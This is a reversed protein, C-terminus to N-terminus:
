FFCPWNRKANLDCLVSKPALIQRASQYFIDGLLPHKTKGKLNYTIIIIISYNQRWFLIPIIITQMLSLSLGCGRDVNLRPITWATTSPTTAQAARARQRRKLRAEPWGTLSPPPTQGWLLKTIMMAELAQKSKLGLNHREPNKASCRTSFTPWSAKPRTPGPASELM